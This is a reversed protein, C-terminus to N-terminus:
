PANGWADWSHGFGEATADWELTPEPNIRGNQMM